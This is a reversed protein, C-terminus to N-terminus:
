DYVYSLEPSVSRPSENQDSALCLRNRRNRLRQFGVNKGACVKLRVDLQLSMYPTACCIVM